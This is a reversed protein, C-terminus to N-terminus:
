KDISKSYDAYCQYLDDINMTDFGDYAAGDPGPLRQVFEVFVGYPVQPAVFMQKLKAGAGDKYTLVPTMFNWGLKKMEIHLSEIDVEPDINYATHQISEGYRKVFQNVPSKPDESVSLGTMTAWPYESTMGSVLAIHTAPWRTCHLRVHEHFGLSSWRQIFAKENAFSAVYTIHDIHRISKLVDTSAARPKVIPPAFL